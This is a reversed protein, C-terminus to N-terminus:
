NKQSWGKLICMLQRKAAMKMVNEVMPVNKLHIGVKEASAVFSTQVRKQWTGMSVVSAASSPNPKIIIYGRNNGLVIVPGPLLCGGLVTGFAKKM